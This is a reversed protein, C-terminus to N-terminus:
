QGKKFDRAWRSIARWRRKEELQARVDHRRAQFSVERQLKHYSALRGQALEGAEVAERVCCGPEHQHSCDGFRCGAALAEVDPFTLSLGEAGDWLQLERVGPNDIIWAGGPVPFMERHTTTHRGRSDDERVEGTDLLERGVLHNILTSKGVGSSGLLALTQGAALYPALAEFGCGALCSIAHVAVGPACAQAEALREDVDPCCDAKNLLIVPRAGSDWGAVLMRELRRLNFDGDLGAVIFVTDVNAAVVQEATVGGAVKRSLKSARPLIALIAGTPGDPGTDLAVWDGAAPLQGGSVEGHRLKGAPCASVNGRASAVTCTGGYAAIVRGPVADATALAALETALRANWGLSELPTPSPTCDDQM